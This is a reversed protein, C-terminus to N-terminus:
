KGQAPIDWFSMVMGQLSDFMVARLTKVKETILNFGSFTVLHNAANAYLITEPKGLINGSQDFLIGGMVYHNDAFRPHKGTGTSPGGLFADVKGDLRVIINPRHLTGLDGQGGTAAPAVYPRLLTSGGYLKTPDHKAVVGPASYDKPTNAAMDFDAGWYGHASCRAVITLKPSGMRVLDPIIFMASPAMDLPGFKKWFLLQNDAQNFVYIDTITNRTAFDSKEVPHFAGILPAIGVDVCLLYRTETQTSDMKYSKVSYYDITIAHEPAVSAQSGPKTQTSVAQDQVTYSAFDFGVHCPISSSSQQAQTPKPTALLLSASAAKVFTRRSISKKPGSM